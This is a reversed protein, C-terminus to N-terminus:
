SYFNFQVLDYKSKINDDYSKKFYSFSNIKNQTHLLNVVYNVVDLSDEYDVWIPEDEYKLYIPLCNNFLKIQEIRLNKIARRYIANVDIDSETMISFSHNDIMYKKTQGEVRNIAGELDKKYRKM